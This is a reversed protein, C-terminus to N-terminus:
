HIRALFDTVSKKVGDVIAKSSITAATIAQIDKLEVDQARKGRFQKLFWPADEGYRLENIKAGLGPTETHSLIKIGKIEGSADFGVLMTIPGGYGKTMAKIVYGIKNGDKKAVYYNEADLTKDEFETAQPFVGALSNREERIMQAEIRSQTIKYTVSLVLSAALCISLLILGYRIMSDRM